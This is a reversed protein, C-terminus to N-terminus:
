INPDVYCSSSNKRWEEDIEDYLENEGSISGDWLVGNSDSLYEAIVGIAYEIDNDNDCDELLDFVDDIADMDNLETLVSAFIEARQAAVEFALRSDSMGNYFKTFHVGVREAFETPSM